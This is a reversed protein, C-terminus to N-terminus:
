RLSFCSLMRKERRVSSLAAPHARTGRSGVTLEAVADARGAARMSGIIMPAIPTTYPSMPVLGSYVSRVANM